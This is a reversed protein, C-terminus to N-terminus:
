PERPRPALDVQISQTKGPSLTVNAEGAWGDAWIQVESDGASLGSLEWTGSTGFFSEERGPRGWVRVFFLTPAPRVTGRLTASASLHLTAAVGSPFTQPETTEGLDNNAYVVCGPNPMFVTFTGSADTMTSDGRTVDPPCSMRVSARSAPGNAGLVTGRLRPPPSVVLTIPRDIPVIPDADGSVLSLRAGAVDVDLHIPGPQAVSIDFRGDDETGCSLQRAESTGTALVTAQIGEGREDVVRGQLHSATRVVVRVGSAPASVFVPAIDARGSWDSATVEYTGPEDVFIEFAGERTFGSALEAGGPRAAAIDIASVSEGADDVAVGAIALKDHVVFTRVLPKEGIEIAGAEEGQAKHPCDLRVQYVDPPLSFTLDGADDATEAFSEGSTATLHVTAGPCPAGSSALEVRADVEAVPHLAITVDSAVHGVDVWVSATAVGFLGKAQAIPKFRGARLGGLRFRGDLGTLTSEARGPGAIATAGPVAAGTDARVVRGTILAEDDGAPQGALAALRPRLGAERSSRPPAHSAVLSGVGSSQRAKCWTSGLLALLAVLGIVIFSLRRRV